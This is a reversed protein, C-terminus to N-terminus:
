YQNNLFNKKDAKKFVDLFLFFLPLIYMFNVYLYANVKESIFLGLTLLFIGCIGAITHYKPRYREYPAKINNGYSQYLTKMLQHISILDFGKFPYFELNVDSLLGASNVEIYLFRNQNVEYYYYDEEFGIEVPDSKKIESSKEKMVKEIDNQLSAFDSDNLKRFEFRPSQRIQKQKLILLCVLFANLVLHTILIYQSSYLSRFLTINIYNFYFFLNFLRYSPNWSCYLLPYKKRNLWLFFLYFCVFFSYSILIYLGVYHFMSLGFPRPQQTGEIIM